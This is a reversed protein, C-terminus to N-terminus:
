DINQNIIEAKDFLKLLFSYRKHSMNEEIKALHKEYSPKMIPISLQYAETMTNKYTGPIFILHWDWAQWNYILTHLKTNNYKPM